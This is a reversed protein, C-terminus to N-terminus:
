EPFPNVANSETSIIGSNEAKMRALAKEMQALETSLDKQPQVPASMNANLFGQGNIYVRANGYRGSQAALQPTYDFMPQRNNEMLYEPTITCDVPLLGEAKARAINQGIIKAREKKSELSFEFSKVHVSTIRQLEPKGNPRTQGTQKLYSRLVGDVNIARGKDMYMAAVQAYKGWFVLGIEDRMEEGARNKGRNKIVTVLCKHGNVDTGPFFTPEGAVWVNSLKVRNDIM